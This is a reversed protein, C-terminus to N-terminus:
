VKQAVVFVYGRTVRESLRLEHRGIAHLTWGKLEARLDEETFFRPMPTLPEHPLINGSYAFLGGPNVATLCERFRPLARDFLYQLCQLAVVADFNAPKLPLTAIDAQSASVMSLLGLEAARKSTVAVASALADCATVRYGARALACATTGDGCALELAARSGATFEGAARLLEQAAMPLALEGLPANEALMRQFCKDWGAMWAQPAHVDLSMSM